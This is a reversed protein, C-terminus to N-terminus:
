CVPLSELLFREELAAIVDEPKIALPVHEKFPMKRDDYMDTTYRMHVKDTHRPWNVLRQEEAYYQHKTGTMVTEWYKSPMRMHESPTDDHLAFLQHYACELCDYQSMGNPIDRFPIQNPQRYFRALPAVRDAAPRLLDNGHPPIIMSIYSWDPRGSGHFTPEKWYMLVEPLHWLDANHSENRGLVYAGSFESRYRYAQLRDAQDWPRVMKLEATYGANAAPFLALKVKPYRECFRSAVLYAKAAVALMKRADILGADSLRKISGLWESRKTSAAAFFGTTMQTDEDRRIVDLKEAEDYSLLMGTEDNMVVYESTDGPRNRRGGAYTGEFAVSGDGNHYICKTSHGKDNFYSKVGEPLTIPLYKDTLRKRYGTTTFSFGWVSYRKGKRTNCHVTAYTGARGAKTPTRLYFGRDHQSHANMAFFVNFGKLVQTSGESDVLKLYEAPDKKLISMAKKLLWSYTPIKKTIM